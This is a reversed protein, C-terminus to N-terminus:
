LVVWENCLIFAQLILAIFGIIFLLFIGKFLGEAAKIANRVDKKLREDKVPLLCCCAFCGKSCM